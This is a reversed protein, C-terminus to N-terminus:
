CGGCGCITVFLIKECLVCVLRGVVAWPRNVLCSIAAITLLGCALGAMLEYVLWALSNTTFEFGPIHFIRYHQMERIRTRLEFM